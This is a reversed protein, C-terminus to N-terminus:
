ALAADNGLALPVAHRKRQWYGTGEMTAFPARCCEREQRSECQSVRASRWLPAKRRLARANRERCALSQDRSTVRSARGTTARGKRQRTQCAATPQARRVLGLPEQNKHTSLQAADLM